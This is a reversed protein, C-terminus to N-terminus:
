VSETETVLSYTSNFLEFLKYFEFTYIYVCNLDTNMIQVFNAENGPEEAWSKKASSGPFLALCFSMKLFCLVLEFDYKVLVDCGTRIFLNM